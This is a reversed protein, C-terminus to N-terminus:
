GASGDEIPTVRVWGEQAEHPLRPLLAAQSAAVIPDDRWTLPGTRRTFTQKDGLLNVLPLRIETPDVLVPGVRVSPMLKRLGSTVWDDALALAKRPLIGSTLHVRGAPLMLLTLRVTQGPRVWLVDDEVLYPHDLPDIAPNKVAGLLGLQGRHRGSEIAQAAVIKDVLHLHLYDDDVFFGLLSDDARELAGLRIPFREENLKAFAARRASAGGPATVDVENLDDPAELRLMARVVAMPRGILGAVTPSGISAFTDVTWLTTDVARLLATLASASGAPLGVRSAVDAQVLGAAVEGVIRDHAGLDALPGADPPVPRGPAPEWMVAGSISDHSLQGIPGGAVTFAELGEDIHDPLLFGAIPNVALTPDLQDVFAERAASPDVDAPQAPDVLRFLWRALHELRPRLEIATPVDAVELTLTTAVQAVPVDVIRGFADVLRLTDIAMQGGFMPTPPRSAVPLKENAETGRDVHGVYDIGLLQERIGDLSASVVDLPVIFDGLRGLASEDADSLISSTPDADDRQQEAALWRSISQQLASSVGQTLPSRGVYTFNITEAGLAGRDLDLGVLNWGDITDTGTLTVKWELWLPIWPQRWTTIAVPSPPTGAMLSHRSLESTLQRDIMSSEVSVASWANAAGHLPAVALHSSGDYRGETGYLRVMEAALRVTFEATRDPNGVAGAAALWRFSYPNLVVAERVILLVEDPIAGSGLSPVVAAGSVVGDIGPICEKPYRCRMRGSSEYLGDGHHRHNPKAGRLAVLPAQPRFWRPAARVVERSEAPPGPATKEQVRPSHTKRATNTEMLEVGLRWDISAALRADISTAAAGRGKRGVTTPGVAASDAARLRDSKASPLPTGPLPWFGDAHEREELDSIGDPTGLRDLLDSTFAAALREASQRHVADLGLAPAGFAAIVDDVDMGMAIGMSDPAPRDDGPPLQAGVPVGNVSGHVLTSYTPLPPGVFIADAIHAPSSVEFAVDDLRTALFRGNTSTVDVPTHAVPSTLGLTSRVHSLMPSESTQLDDDGDHVVLWGLEALRVDLRQQGAIGALPDLSEDSWWGAVTYSAQDGHWGGVNQGSAAVDDLPDYFGFRGASATYSATWMLSGGSAGDLPDFAVGGGPLPAPTGSYDALAMVSGLSADVVWGRTVVASGKEPMLARVIVWRDPLRPMSLEAATKSQRGRLLADPMAWHLHVGPPRVVADAFPAPDNPGGTLPVTKEEAGAIVVFAQVDAPVLLRHRRPLQEDWTGISALDRGTRALAAFRRDFVADINVPSVADGM